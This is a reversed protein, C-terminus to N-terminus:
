SRSCSMKASRWFITQMGAGCDPLSYKTQEGMWVPTAVAWAPPGKALAAALAPYQKEDMLTFTRDASGWVSRVTGDVDLPEITPVYNAQGYKLVCWAGAPSPLNYSAARALLDVGGVGSIKIRCVLSTMPWYGFLSLCHNSDGGCSSGLWDPMPLVHGSTTNGLAFQGGSIPQWRVIARGPAANLTDAAIAGSAAIDFWIDYTYGHSDKVPITASIHAGVAGGVSAPNSSSVPVARPTASGEQAQTSGSTPASTVAPLASSDTSGSGGSGCAAVGCLLVAALAPIPRRHQGTVSRLRAVRAIQAM